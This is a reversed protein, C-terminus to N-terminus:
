VQIESSLRDSRWELKTDVKIQNGVAKQRPIGPANVGVTRRWNHEATNTTASSEKKAAQSTSLEYQADSGRLDRLSEQDFPNGEVTRYKPRIHDNQSVKKQPGSRVLQQLTSALTPVCACIIGICQEVTSWILFEVLEGVCFRLNLINYLM